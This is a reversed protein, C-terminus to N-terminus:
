KFIFLYGINEDYQIDVLKGIEEIKNTEVNKCSIITGIYMRPCQSIEIFKENDDNYGIFTEDSNILKYVNFENKESLSKLQKLLSPNKKFIKYTIM